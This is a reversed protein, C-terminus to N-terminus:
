LCFLFFFSTDACLTAARGVSARCYQNTKVIPKTSIRAQLDHPCIRETEVLGFTLNAYIPMIRFRSNSSAFAPIPLTPEVRKPHCRQPPILYDRWPGFFFAHLSRKREFLRGDSSSLPSPATTTPHLCIV